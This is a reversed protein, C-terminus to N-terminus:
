SPPPPPPARRPSVLGSRPAACGRCGARRSASPPSGRAPGLAPRRRRLADWGPACGGGPPRISEAPPRGARAVIAHIPVPDAKSAGAERVPDSAAVDGAGEASVLADPPESGFFGVVCGVRTCGEAKGPLGSCPGRRHRYWWRASVPGPPDTPRVRSCSTRQCPDFPLADTSERAEIASATAPPRERLRLSLIGRCPSRGAVPLFPTAAV